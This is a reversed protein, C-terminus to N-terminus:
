RISKRLLYRMCLWVMGARLWKPRLRYLSRKVTDARSLGSNGLKQIHQGFVPSDDLEKLCNRIGAAGGRSAMNLLAFAKQLWVADYFLGTEDRLGRRDLFDTYGDVTRAMQSVIDGPINAMLSSDYIYYRYLVDSLTVVSECYSYYCLNFISDEAYRAPLFDIGHERILSGRYLKGWISHGLKGARNLLFDERGTEKLSLVCEQGPYLVERDGRVRVHACVALDADSKEIAECLRFLCDPTAEDDADVFSVYDGQAQSLGLNRAAAPGGNPRSLPRVRGDKRAFDELIALTRDTSGDDVALIEFETMTQGLLSRICRELTGEANYAAVIVSVKVPM